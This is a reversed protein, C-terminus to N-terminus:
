VGLVVGHTRSKCPFCVVVQTGIDPLVWWGSKNKKNQGAIQYWPSMCGPSVLPLYVRVRGLFEPDRNDAIIGITPPCSQHYEASRLEHSNNKRPDPYKKLLEEKKEQLRYSLTM